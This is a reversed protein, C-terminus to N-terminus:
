KAVRCRHGCKLDAAYCARLINLDKITRQAPSMQLTTQACASQVQECANLCAVVKARPAAEAAVVMGIYIMCACGAILAGNRKTM